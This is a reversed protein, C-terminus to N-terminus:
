LSSIETFDMDCGVRCTAAPVASEFDIVKLIGDKEGRLFNRRAVDHHHYGRAHMEEIVMNKEPSNM